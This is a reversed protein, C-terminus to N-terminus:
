APKTDQLLSERGRDLDTMKQAWNINPGLNWFYLLGKMAAFPNRSWTKLWITELRSYFFDREAQTTSECGAVFCPWLPCHSGAVNADISMLIMKLDSSLQSLEISQELTLTSEALRYHYIRRAIKFCSNYQMITMQIAPSCHYKRHDLLFSECADHGPENSMPRAVFEILGSQYELFDVLPGQGMGERKRGQRFSVLTKRLAMIDASGTILDGLILLILCCWSSEAFVQQQALPSACSAASSSSFRSGSSRPGKRVRWGRRTFGAAGPGPGQQQQSQFQQSGSLAIEQLMKIVIGRGVEADARLSPVKYSLHFAATVCVARRVLPCQVAFPLVHSRFGNDDYHVFLWRTKPDLLELSTSPSPPRVLEELEEEEQPPEGTSPILTNSSMSHTNIDAGRSTDFAAATPQPLPAVNGSATTYHNITEEYRMVEVHSYRAGTQSHKGGQDHHVQRDDVGSSYIFQKQSGWFTTHM